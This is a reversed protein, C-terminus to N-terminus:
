YHENFFYILLLPFWISFLVFVFIGFRTRFKIKRNVIKETGNKAIYKYFNIISFIVELILFSFSIFKNGILNNIGTIFYFVIILIMFNASQCFSIVIIPFIEPDSNIRKQKNYIYHFMNQYFKM